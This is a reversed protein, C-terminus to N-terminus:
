ADGRASILARWAGLRGYRVRACTSSGALLDTLAAAVIKGEAM